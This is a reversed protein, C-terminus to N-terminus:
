VGLAPHSRPLPCGAESRTRSTSTPTNATATPRNLHDLTRATHHHLHPRNSNDLHHQQRRQLHLGLRHQDQHPQPTQVGPWRQSPHHERRPRVPVTHDYECRYGPQNCGPFVCVDDKPSRRPGAPTPRAPVPRRRHRAPAGTDPDTLLRRWTGSQDAAMRRATEATIPGYGTLHAPNDDLDLLTDASVTVHITPRRGQLDPLGDVPIGSLVADVLLDARKQDMTRTDQAPLLKAAATLRTFVCQADPANLVVPLAAMGDDLAQFAVKRDSLAQQNRAEGKAPELRLELTTLYRRFESLTKVPAKDLAAAEFVPVSEPELRWVREAIVDAHRASFRGDSLGRVTAPLRDVLTRATKLQSQASGRPVRLALSVADQSLNLKSDDRRDLEALVRLQAAEFVRKQQELLTLLDIRGASDLARPDVRLLEDSPRDAPPMALWARLRGGDDM